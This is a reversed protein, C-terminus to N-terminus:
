IDNKKVEKQLRVEDDHGLEDFLTAIINQIDPIPYPFVGAPTIHILARGVDVGDPIEDNLKLMRQYINLQVTYHSFNNDPFKDFPAFGFNGWPNDQEIKKNTKYDLIWYKPSGDKKVSRAFLDVTGALKLHELFTVKEIGLIDYKSKLKEAIMVAHKFTEKERADVPVNRLPNGKMTDECCEHVRTGFRSATEAIDKWEKLIEETTVGRKAAVRPAIANSDFKPFFRDVLTTVSTYLIRNGNGDLTYYEHPGEDFHLEVGNKNRAVSTGPM